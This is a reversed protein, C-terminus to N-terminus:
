IFWYEILRLFRNSFLVFPAIRQTLFPQQQQGYASSPASMIPLLSRQMVPERIATLLRSTQPGVTPASGYGAGYGLTSISYKRESM